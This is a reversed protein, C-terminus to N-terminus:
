VMLYANQYFGQWVKDRYWHCCSTANHMNLLSLYPNSTALYKVIEHVPDTHKHLPSYHLLSPVHPDILCIHGSGRSTKKGPLIRMGERKEKGVEAHKLSSHRGLLTSNQNMGPFSLDVPAQYRWCQCKWSASLYSLPQQDRQIASLFTEFAKTHVNQIRM